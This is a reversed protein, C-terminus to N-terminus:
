GYIYDKAWKNERHDPKFWNYFKDEVDQRTSLKDKLKYKINKTIFKM